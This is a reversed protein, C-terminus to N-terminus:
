GIANYLGLFNAVMFVANLTFLPKDKRIFGITLWSVAGILFLVYGILYHQSAVSFAGSVSAITGFWSLANM